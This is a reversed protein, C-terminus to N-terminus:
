LQKKTRSKLYKRLWRGTTIRTRKWVGVEECEDVYAEYVKGTNLEEIAVIDGRRWIVNGIVNIPRYYVLSTRTEPDICLLLVILLGVFMKMHLPLELSGVLLGVGVGLTIRGMSLVCGTKSQTCVDQRM